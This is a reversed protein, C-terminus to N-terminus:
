LNTNSNSHNSKLLRHPNAQNKKAGCNCFMTQQYKIEHRRLSRRIYLTPSEASNVFTKESSSTKRNAPIVPSRFGTWVEFSNAAFVRKLSRIACPRRVAPVIEAAIPIFSGPGPHM